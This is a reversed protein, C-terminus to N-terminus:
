RFILPRNSEVTSIVPRFIITTFVEHAADLFSKKKRQMQFWREVKLFLETNGQLLQVVREGLSQKTQDILRKLQPVELFSLRQTISYLLLFGDAWRISSELSTM